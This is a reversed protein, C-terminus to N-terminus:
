IGFDLLYEVMPFEGAFNSGAALRDLYPRPRGSLLKAVLHVCHQLTLDDLHGKQIETHLRDVISIDGMFGLSLAIFGKTSDNKSEILKTL